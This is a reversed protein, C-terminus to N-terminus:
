DPDGRGNKIFLEKVSVLVIVLLPAALLLGLFGFLTTFLLMALITLAPPLRASHKQVQPILIHGEFFHLGVFLCAVYLVHMPSKLFALLCSIIGVVWPGVVPVFDLIGSLLGLAKSLPVGLFHLGLWTLIGIVTMSLGQGLLWRQLNIGIANLVRRGRARTKPPLLQLFGEIYLQPDIALYVGCFVIVLIDVIGEMTVSFLNGAKGIVGQAHSLIGTPEHMERLLVQGWKHQEVQRQLQATAQPLKERLQDVQQSIPSALLWGGLGFAALIVVIVVTLSWTKGLRTYRHVWNALTCLFIALLVAALFLLAVKIARWLVVVAAAVALVILVVMGARRATDRLGPSSAQTKSSADEAM